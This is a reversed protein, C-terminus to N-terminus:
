AGDDEALLDEAAHVEYGHAELTARGVREIEARSLVVEGPALVVRDLSPPSAAGRGKPPSPQSVLGGAHYGGDRPAIWRRKV